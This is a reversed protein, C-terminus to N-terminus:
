TERDLIALVTKPLHPSAGSRTFIINPHQHEQQRLKWMSNRHAIIVRKGALAQPILEQRLWQQHKLTSPLRKALRCNSKEDSLKGSRYAVANVLALRGSAIYQEYNSARYYASVSFPNVARPNHLMDLYREVSAPEPFEEPTMQPHYGGNMMLLIFPASNVDGIYAPPPWDLNFSHLASAFFPEDDPHVNGTLARWHQVIMSNRRM